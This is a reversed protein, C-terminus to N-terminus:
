ICVQNDTPQLRELRPHLKAPEEWSDRQVGGVSVVRLSGETEGLDLMISWPSLAESPLQCKLCAAPAASTRTAATVSQCSRRRPLHPALCRTNGHARSATVTAVAQM